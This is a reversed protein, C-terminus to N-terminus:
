MITRFIKRGISAESIETRVVQILNKLKVNRINGEDEGVYKIKGHRLNGM